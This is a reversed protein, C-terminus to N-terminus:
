DDQLSKLLYGKKSLIEIPKQPNITPRSDAFLPNKITSGTFMKEWRWLAEYRKYVTALFVWGADDTKVFWCFKKHWESEIQDVTIRKNEKMKRQLKPSDQLCKQTFQDKSFDEWM